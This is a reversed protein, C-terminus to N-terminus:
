NLTSFLIENLHKKDFLSNYQLIRYQNLWYLEDAEAEEFTLYCKRFSSYFGNANIATIKEEMAHLFQNYPPLAIGAVDYVYTSLYNLSTCAINKEKVGYNTWIFFPVKYQNQQEQLTDIASGNITNYFEIEINPQHDGFFVIVVEEEVNEFYNILYEVATDTEHILSLYQEVKPFEGPYDVLSIHQTYNEDNYTYNGHNQMTVGFIFLPKDKQKEYMQVLYEFMEQDSIYRRIYNEQPFDEQFHCEDFGLYEYVAPRNWGSAQYPHMAICRYNYFSKLYSVMSYTSSRIYQQYPVVNSSLWAMSNGTLFEYESNATNGGHVSSLAYGSITKEKLFSIFPTVEINTSFTGIVSLDSFSEDMIVIIHPLESQNENQMASDTAYEKAIEDLVEINYGDPKSVSIEKFKSVFDLVYGNYKAGQNRWHFTKLNTAYAITIFSFVIGAVLFFCRKKNSIKQKYKRYFSCIIIMTIIFINFGTKVNPPIPFLSYNGVVNMATKFSFIDVPEFMCGKFSYVYANITSIIMCIGMGFFVAPVIHGFICYFLLIITFVILVGWIFKVYGMSLIQADATIQAICVTIISAIVCFLLSVLFNNNQEINPLKEFIKRAITLMIRFIVYLFYTSIVALILAGIFLMAEVSIHLIVAIRNMLPSSLWRNYFGLGLRLTFYISLVFLFLKQLYCKKDSKHKLSFSKKYGLLSICISGLVFIKITAIIGKLTIPMLLVLLSGYSFIMLLLDLM